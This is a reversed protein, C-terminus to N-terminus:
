SPGERRLRIPRLDSVDRGDSELEEAERDPETLREPAAAFRRWALAGALLVLFGLALLAAAIGRRPEAQEDGSASGSVPAHAAPTAEHSGVVTRALAPAQRVGDCPIILLEPEALGIGTVSVVTDPLPPADACGHEVTVLVDDVRLSPGDGGAEVRGILTVWAAPEGRAPMESRPASPSRPVALMEGLDPAFEVMPAGSRAEAGIARLGSLEVAIPPRAGLRTVAPAVAPSLAVLRTGDWLLGGIGLEPWAATVLTAGIRLDVLDITGVAELGTAATGAAGLSSEGAPAGSGGGSPGAPGSSVEDGAPALVRVGSASRPWIRYGATPEAGTTQQGVVGVVEVTTGAVLHSDDAELSSPLVVRVTGSGDDVDFSVTGSAARRASELLQGRVSVLQAEVAEGVENVAIARAGTGRDTAVLRPAATLRLTEMGSKTSRVGDVEVLNGDRLEAWEQDVRLVIGATADQITATEGDVVGPAMTVVGRVTMETGAAADRAERISIPASPEGPGPTPSAAPDPGESAPPGNSPAAAQRVELVDDASRPQVRYGSTGSGSSDRQGVVGVMEITVGSTWSSADIGTASGVIVRAEGSGDDMDFALGTTLPTPGSRVTASIRVLRAELSEGIEGIAVAVPEIEEAAGLAHVDTAAARITRQAFRSEVQGTVEMRMGAAFFGGDVIVAIGAEGDSLYGGGDHFASGTLAAGRVTVTSGDPLSRAVSVPVPSPLVTNTSPVPSPSTGVTPVPSVSPASSPSPAATASSAGQPTPVAREVFDLSNNHTDQTEGGGDVVREISFGPRPAQAPTGEPWTGSATGWGVADVATAAGAARLVLTGGVDSLGGRYVLDARAAHTGLENALLLHGGAPIPAADPAFLVRQSVTAGSASVYVVELHALPLPGTSPNRLEIFEDSASAGGTAIESLVLHDLAIGGTTGTPVVVLLLSLAAAWLSLRPWRRPQNSTNIRRM